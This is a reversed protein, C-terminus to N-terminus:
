FKKYLTTRVFEKVASAAETAIDSSRWVGMRLHMNRMNSGWLTLLKKGTECVSENTTLLYPIKIESVHDMIYLICWIMFYFLLAINLGCEGNVGVVGQM